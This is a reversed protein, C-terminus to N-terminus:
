ERQSCNKRNLLFFLFFCPFYIAFDCVFRNKIKKQWRWKKKSRTIGGELTHFRSLFYFLVKRGSEYMFHSLFFTKEEESFKNVNKVYCFLKHPHLFSFNSTVAYKRTFMLANKTPYFNVFFFNFFFELAAIFKVFLRM